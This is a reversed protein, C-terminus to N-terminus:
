PMGIFDNLLQGVTVFRYGREKLGDIIAPLAARAAKCGDGCFPHLLIISGPRVNQLTHRVMEEADNPFYTDPEVDWMVTRIDNKALYRPLGFLKKGYPPRFTIEGEFGASRILENTTEIENKIKKSSVLLFRPHSYSHNGLEHGARVIAKAEEPYKEINSGIAYFTAQVNKQRLLTLVDNSVSSPADDFTLAVVKEVTAVRNTLGDFFQFTRSKSIKFFGVLLIVVLAVVAILVIFIKKKNLM